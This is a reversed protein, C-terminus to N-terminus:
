GKAPKRRVPVDVGQKRMVCATSAVSRVTTKAAPHAAVVREVIGVYSLGPDALLEAVLRGVAGRDSASDRAVVAARGDNSKPKEIAPSLEETAEPETTDAAADDLPTDLGEPELPNVYTAMVEAVEERLTARRTM